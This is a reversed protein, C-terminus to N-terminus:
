IFSSTLTFATATFCKFLPTQKRYVNCCYGGTQASVQHRHRGGGQRRCLLTSSPAINTSEFTGLTTAGVGSVWTINNCFSTSSTTVTQGALGSNGDFVVNDKKFPVIQESSFIGPIRAYGLAEPTPTTGETIILGVGKRKGYYEAM